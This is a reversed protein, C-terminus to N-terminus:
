LNQLQNLNETSNSFIRELEKFYKSEEYKDVFTYYAEITKNYYKAKSERKSSQALQYNTKVIGYFSNELLSLSQEVLKEDSLYDIHNGYAMIALKFIAEKKMPKAAQAHEFHSKIIHFHAKELYDEAEETYESQPFRAVFSEYSTIVDAYREAKKNVYSNEAFKYNAQITLFKIYEAQDIDPFDILLNDLSVAAARYSRTRYYLRAQEVAKKELKDRLKSIKENCEPISESEPYTNIYYQYAEIAKKTNEQDL